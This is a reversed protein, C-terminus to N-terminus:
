SWGQHGIVTIVARCDRCTVEDSGIHVRFSQEGCATRFGGTTENESHRRSPGQAAWHIINKNKWAVYAALSLLVAVMSSLSIGFLMLNDHLTLPEWGIPPDIIM